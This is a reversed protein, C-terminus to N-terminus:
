KKDGGDEKTVSMEIYDDPQQFGRRLYSRGGDVYVMGCSCQVFDHTYKSEIVDGCHVCKIANKIIM